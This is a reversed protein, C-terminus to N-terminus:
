TSIDNKFFQKVASLGLIKRYQTLDSNVLSGRGKLRAWLAFDEGADCVRKWKVVPAAMM